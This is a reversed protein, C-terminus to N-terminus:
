VKAKVIKLIFSYDFAVEEIGADRGTKGGHGGEMETKLLLLNNDKKCERLKAVYKTPEDFLVRNDFLSTTVLIHPYHKKRINHYPSYTKIYEFHKKYKKANGFEKFEGVTLPLSHDLNTTLSDVFPVALLAGLFIEPKKNLVAGMLLGGASGGMGIIKKASTYKNKILYNACSIYDEFTNKKRLMKGNKWWDMGCEMGGRVHANAWIIGRNILSYKASSFGNGLSSGYSGYGYLLINAQGNIKTKKHRIVTIPIKVKDKSLAYLRETVYDTKKFGSPIIQKKIIKKQKNKLNYKYTIGPEIPSSYGIYIFNSKKDKEYSSFSISKIDNSFFNIEEQKQSLTSRVFIKSNANTTEKWIFWNELILYSGIITNKKPRVYDTFKQRNKHHSRLIKFDKAGENTHLYFFNEWSDISYSINEKFQKFLNLKLKGKEKKLIYLKNASHDGTSIVFYKEDSTPYISVSFREITEEYVLKDKTPNTGIEHLFIKKPRHNEDLKSYFISKNDFSFVVSGTTNTIIDSLDKGTKLNRIKIDYYESGKLDLSYALYIDNYSISLDGIGFYSTKLKNKEKDGNWIEETIKSGIKRRLKISYNGKKTTKTWYIYHKDKFPIGSDSLKIRGKIEDFIVSAVKKERKMNYATYKNEKELYAKTEKLLLKPDSLVDMINKQHVWSYHDVIKYGHYSKIDKKKKLKPPRM